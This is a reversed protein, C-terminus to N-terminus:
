EDSLNFGLEPSQALLNQNREKRIDADFSHREPNRHPSVLQSKQLEAVLVGLLEAEVGQPLPLVGIGVFETCSDQLFEALGYAHGFQRLM